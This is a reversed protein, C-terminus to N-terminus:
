AECLLSVQTTDHLPALNPTLPKYRVQSRQKRGTYGRGLRRVETLRLMILLVTIGDARVMEHPATSFIM